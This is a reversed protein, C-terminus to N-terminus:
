DNNTISEQVFGQDTTITSSQANPFVRPITNGVLKGVRYFASLCETTIDVLPQYRDTLQLPLHVSEPDPRRRGGVVVDHDHYITSLVM